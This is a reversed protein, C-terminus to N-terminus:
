APPTITVELRAILGSSDFEYRDVGPVPGPLAPSRCEWTATAATGTIEITHVDLELDPLPAEWGQRLRALVADKGVAPDDSGSFPEIYVADDAFLAMMDAEAASGQRMAAFYRDITVQPDFETATM